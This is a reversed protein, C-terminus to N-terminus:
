SSTTAPRPLRELAAHQPTLGCRSAVDVLLAARGGTPAGLTTREGTLAQVPLDPM